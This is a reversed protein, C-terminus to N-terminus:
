ECSDGLNKLIRRLDAKLETIRSPESQLSEPWGLVKKVLNAGIAAQDCDDITEGYSVVHTNKGDWGLIIVQNLNHARAFRKASHIPIDGQDPESM